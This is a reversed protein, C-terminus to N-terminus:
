AKDKFHSNTEKSNYLKHQQFPIFTAMGEFMSFILDDINRALLMNQNLLRNIKLPLNLSADKKVDAIKTTHYLKLSNVSLRDLLSGVGETAVWANYNVPSRYTHSKNEIDINKLFESDCKEVFDNRQQNAIDISQKHQPIVAANGAYDRCPDENHWVNCNAVHINCFALMLKNYVEAHFSDQSRHLGLAMKEIGIDATNIVRGFYKQDFKSSNNHLLSNLDPNDASGWPVLMRATFSVWFYRNSFVAADM